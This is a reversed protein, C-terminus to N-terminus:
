ALAIAHRPSLSLVTASKATGVYTNYQGAATPPTSTLRGAIAASLFYDVGATLGGVTGAVADWEGTTATILGDTAVSGSAAGAISADYVVGYAKAPAAANAQALQFTDAASVYVVSGIVAAAGGNTLTEVNTFSTNAVITDAAQLVEPHGSTGLVLPKKVAM